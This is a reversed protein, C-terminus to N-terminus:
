RNRPSFVSSAERSLTHPAAHPRASIHRPTARRRRPAAEKAERKSCSSALVFPGTGQSPVQLSLTLQTPLLHSHRHGLPPIYHHENPSAKHGAPASCVQCQTERSQGQSASSSTPTVTSSPHQLLEQFAAPNPFGMRGQAAGQVGSIHTTPHPTSAYSSYDGVAKSASRTLPLISHSRATGEIFDGARQKAPIATETM